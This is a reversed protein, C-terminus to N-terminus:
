QSSQLFARARQILPTISPFECYVLIRRTRPQEPPPRDPFPPFEPFGGDFNPLPVNDHFTLGSCLKALADIKTSKVEEWEELTTPKPLPDKRNRKLYAIALRYELYINQSSINTFARLVLIYVSAKTIWANSCENATNARLSKESNTRSTNPTQSV